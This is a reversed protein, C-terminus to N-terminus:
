KVRRVYSWGILLATVGALITIVTLAGASLGGLETSISTFLGEVSGAAHAPATVAVATGTTAVVGLKTRFRQFWTKNHHDQQIREVNKLNCM